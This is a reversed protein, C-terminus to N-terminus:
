KKGFWQGPPGMQPEEEEFIYSMQKTDVVPKKDKPMLSSKPYGRKPVKNTFVPMRRPEAQFAMLGQAWDATTSHLSELLDEILVGTKENATQGYKIPGKTSAKKFTLPNLRSLLFFAAWNM